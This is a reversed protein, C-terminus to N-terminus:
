AARDRLKDTLAAVLADASLFWHRVVKELVPPHKDAFDLGWVPKNRGWAGAACSWTTKDGPAIYLVLDARAADDINNSYGYEGGTANAIRCGLQLLKDELLRMIEQHRWPSGALYISFEM